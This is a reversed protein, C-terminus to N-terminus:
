LRVNELRTGFSWDDFDLTSTPLLFLYLICEFKREGLDIRFQSKTCPNALAYRGSYIEERGREDRGGCRDSSKISKKKDQQEDRVEKQSIPDHCRVQRYRM